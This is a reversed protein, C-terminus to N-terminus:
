VRPAPAQVTKALLEPFDSVIGDVGWDALQVMEDARNVTWVLVKKAADHFERVLSRSVLTLHPIVYSVPLRRWADLESRRECIIGSPVSSDKDALRLLVEPLFSSVVYGCEPTHGRVAALVTAELGPVKLEIDLFARQSFRTVVEDLSALDSLEARRARAIEVRKHQADHCIVAQDDATRRVDFEFGDCGTQLAQEFAAISNEAPGSPSRLGRHGLLLPRPM